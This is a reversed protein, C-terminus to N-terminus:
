QAQHPRSEPPVLGNARYYVVLQGYHEASHEIAVTWTYSSHAPRRGWPYTRVSDLGADGGQQLLKVGDAVAQRLLKVIAAKTRYNEPSPDLEHTGFAPGVSAGSAARMLVYDAWAIHLLTQAFTRQDKQLKYDYKDAPFEEAALVLRNGIESWMDTMEEARTRPSEVQKQPADQSAVSRNALVFVVAAFLVTVRKM